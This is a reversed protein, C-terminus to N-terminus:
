AVIRTDDSSPAGVRCATLELYIAQAAIEAATV